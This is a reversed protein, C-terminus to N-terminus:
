HEQRPWWSKRLYQRRAEDVGPPLMPLGTRVLVFSCCMDRVRKMWGFATSDELTHHLRFGHREFAEVWFRMPKITLHLSAPVSQNGHEEALRPLHTGRHDKRNSVKLFLWRRAVRAIERTATEVEDPALHELVDSSIIADFAHDAFPLATAAAATFCPAVCRPRGTVLPWPANALPMFNKNNPTNLARTVYTKALAAKQLRDDARLKCTTDSTCKLRHRRALAIANKSVDVGSATLGGNKWLNEVVLGNSCGVDLVTSFNFWQALESAEYMLFMGHNFKPNSHYGNAYLRDYLDAGALVSTTNSRM